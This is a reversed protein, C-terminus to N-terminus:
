EERNVYIRDLGMEKLSSGQGSQSVSIEENESSM